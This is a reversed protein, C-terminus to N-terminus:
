AAICRYNTFCTRLPESCCSCSGEEPLTARSLFCSRQSRCHYWAHLLSCSPMSSLRWELQGGESALHQRQAPKTRHCSDSCGLVAQPLIGLGLVCARISVNYHVCVYEAAIHALLSLRGYGSDLGTVQHAPFLSMPLYSKVCSQVM